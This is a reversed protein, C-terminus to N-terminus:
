LKAVLRIDKRITILLNALLEDHQKDSINSNSEKVGDHFALMSTVVDQPAILALTNMSKAFRQHADVDSNDVALDSISSLLEKYHNIKLERWTAERQQRKTFYYSTAALLISGSVTIMAVFIESSM